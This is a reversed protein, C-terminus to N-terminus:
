RNGAEERAFEARRGAILAAAAREQPAPGFEKQMDEIMKRMSIIRASGDECMEVMVRGGSELGITRRIEAPLHMKGSPSVSITVKDNSPKFPANM